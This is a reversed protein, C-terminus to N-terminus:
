PATVAAPNSVSRGHAATALLVVRYARGRARSRVLFPAQDASDLRRIRESLWRGGTWRQLVVVDGPAALPSSATLTALHGRPGYTLSVSVPPVVIVLVPRSQAGDPGSLRFLANTTLDPVTLVARGDPGTTAVRALHWAPQGATREFLSLRAYRMARGHNALQGVLVDSGGAAIRSHAVTVSATVLAAGASKSPSPRPPATSVPSATSAPSSSRVPSSPVPSLRSAPAPRGHHSGASPPGHHVDPVGVFGLVRYAVHQVPAPLAEAYAAAAFGGALVVTVGAALWRGLGGRQRSARWRPAVAPQRSALFMALAASEGALEGPAPGATLLGRLQDLGPEHPWVDDPLFDHPLNVDDGPLNANLEGM